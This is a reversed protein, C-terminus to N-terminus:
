ARFELVVENRHRKIIQRESTVVSPPPLYRKADELPRVSRRLLDLNHREAARIIGQSNLVNFGRVTCDGVVILITGGHRTVRTMEGIMCNLDSAYRRIKGLLAIPVLELNAVMRAVIDDWTTGKVGNEAGVNSSRLDRILGVSYGLWVLSLKHGRLYDIANLYPPSTITLDFFNDEFPLQRCDGSSVVSEPGYHHQPGTFLMRKAIIGAQRPFAEFPSTPAVKWDKHRHPRSHSVDLALSVGYSKTVIMRSIALQLLDATEFRGRRLARVLATLQKRSRPDFWYRIYAKTEEDAGVPYAKAQSINPHMDRARTILTNAERLFVNADFNATSSRAITVALPDRDIGYGSHGRLRSWVLTTGSGMMPDLVRLPQTGASLAQEVVDAGMRAPFPHLPRYKMETPPPVNIPQPRQCVNLAHPAM